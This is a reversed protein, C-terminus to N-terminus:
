IKESVILENGNKNKACWDADIDPDLIVTDYVSNHDNPDPDATQKVTTLVRPEGAVIKEARWIRPARMQDTTFAMIALDPKRKRMEIAAVDFMQLLGSGDRAFNLIHVSRGLKKQLQTQLRSVWTNDSDDTFVSFSNGFVAIKFDAGEYIGESIGPSGNKNIPDAPICWNIRGNQVATAFIGTRDIYKFGREADFRWLSRTYAIILPLETIKEARLQLRPDKLLVHVRYGVEVTLMSVVAVALYFAAQQLIWKM